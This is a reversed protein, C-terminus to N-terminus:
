AAHPGGGPSKFNIREKYLVAQENMLESILSVITDGTFIEKMGAHYPIFNEIRSLQEPNDMEYYCMWQDMSPKWTSIEDIWGSMQDVRDKFLGPIHVYSNEKWFKLQSDALKTTITQTM